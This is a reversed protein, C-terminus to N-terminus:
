AAAGSVAPANRNGPKGLLAWARKGLMASILDGGKADTQRALLLAAALVMGGIFGGLHAWHAVGDRSGLITALVDFAIYFLVVWFGRIAFIKLLLRFGTLLGLRLYIVMFVRHVPFLVLYMGALGMIAGSAGIAPRPPGDSLSVMEAWSAIILLIPYLVATKWQGILANVRSGFVLLFLLNGALHLIGEHLFGNTILQYWHFEGFFQQDPSLQKYAEVVAKDHPMQKQEELEAVKQEFAESNGWHTFENITDAQEIDSATPEHGAWLMLNKTGAAGSSLHSVWVLVTVLVTLATIAWVAYPKKDGYGEAAVPYLGLPILFSIVRIASETNAYIANEDIENSVLISRGTRINIGCEVCILTKGPLYKGCSPCPDTGLPEVPQMTLLAPPTVLNAAAPEEALEYSDDVDDLSATQPVPASTTFELEYDGIRVADGNKLEASAVRKGNVFLGNTSKRDEVRWGRGTRSLSCHNRSVLTGSLAIPKEPLKGAEIPGDGRLIFQEGVRQPGSRITLRVHLPDDSDFASGAAAVVRFTRRCDPCEGLEGVFDEPVEVNNGCRCTVYMM